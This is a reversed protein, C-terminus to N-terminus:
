GAVMSTRGAISGVITGVLASAVTFGLWFEGSLGLGIENLHFVTKLAKTTGSIVVADFGFLLGGLAAVLTSFMLYRSIKM